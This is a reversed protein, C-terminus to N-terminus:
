PYRKRSWHLQQIHTPNKPHPNKLAFSCRLVSVVLFCFNELLYLPWLFIEWYLIYNELGTNTTWPDRRGSSLSSNPHATQTTPINYITLQICPKELEFHASSLGPTYPWTPPKGLDCTSFEFWPHIHAHNLCPDLMNPQWMGPDLISFIWIIFLFSKAKKKEM